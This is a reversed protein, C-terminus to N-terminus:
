KDGTIICVFMKGNMAEAGIGLMKHRVSAVDSFYEHAMISDWIDSYTSGVAAMVAFRHRKITKTLRRYRSTWYPDGSRNLSAMAQSAVRAEVNLISNEPSMCCPIKRDLGSKIIGETLTM